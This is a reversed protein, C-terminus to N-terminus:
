VIQLLLCFQVFRFRIWFECKITKAVCTWRESFWVPVPDGKSIVIAVTAAEVLVKQKNKRKEKRENMIAEIVILRLGLGLWDM